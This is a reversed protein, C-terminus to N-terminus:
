VEFLKKLVEVHYSNIQGWQEDDVKNIEKNLEKSIKVAEKGLIKLETLTISKIDNKICWAKLSFYDQIIELKPKNQTIQKIESLLQLNFVNQQKLIPELIQSILKVQENQVSLNIQANQMPIIEAFSLDIKEKFITPINKGYFSIVIKLVEEKTYHKEKGNEFMIGCKEAHRRISSINKGLFESLEKTTM